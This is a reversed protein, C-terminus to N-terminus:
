PNKPGLRTLALVLTQLDFPKEWRPVDNFEPPIAREDYGTEFVFPINLERLRSAVPFSLEGNLNIDLIACDIASNEILELADAIHAVPGVIIGGADRLARSVDDALFYEDEAVLVRRENLEAKVIQRRLM